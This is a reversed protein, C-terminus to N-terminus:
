ECSARAYAAPSTGVSATFDRVLHAQDSYGLDSALRAWHVHTGRAAMEAADYLRYRRILWKPGIGVHDVFRRQLTRVTTGALGAVEDVRRISWDGAVREALRVTDECPQTDGPVLDRLWADVAEPTPEPLEARFVDAAPVVRDTLSVMPARLFARFGAPRFMIGLARGRGELVRTFLRTRVGHVAAPGDGLVVNAVPHVLVHQEHREGPPLDWVVEWYRDVFRAAAPSPEHRTLSFRRLGTAPYLIGRTDRDVQEVM